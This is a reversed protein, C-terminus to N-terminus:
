LKVYKRPNQTEGGLGGTRFEFHLHPGTSNGTSGVKGIVQGQKVKDGMSVDRKSMHGYLTHLGDNHSIVICEGYSADLAGLASMVVKGERSAKIPTGAPAALDIGYHFDNRGDSYGYESFVVYKDLPQIYKGTDKQGGGSEKKNNKKIGQKKRYDNNAKLGPFGEYIEAFVGAYAKALAGTGNYREAVNKVTTPLGARQLDGAKLHCLKAGCKLSYTVDSNAKAVDFDFGVNGPTIQMLGVSGHGDSSRGVNPDGNSELAAIIKLLMPDVGESEAAALYEKNWRDAGKIKARIGSKYPNGPVMGYGIAESTNPVPTKSVDPGKYDELSFLESNGEGGESENSTDSSDGNSSNFYGQKKFYSAIRKYEALKTKDYYTEAFEKSADYHVETDKLNAGVESIYKKKDQEKNNKGATSEQPKTEKVKDEAM